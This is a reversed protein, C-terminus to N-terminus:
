ERKAQTRGTDAMLTYLNGIHIRCALMKRSPAGTSSKVAEDAICGALREEIDLESTGEEGVNNEGTELQKGNLSIKLSIARSQTGRSRRGRAFLVPFRRFGRWPLHTGSEV